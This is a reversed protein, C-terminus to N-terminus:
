GLSRWPKARQNLIMRNWMGGDRGASGLVRIRRGTPEAQTSKCFDIPSQPDTTVCAASCVFSFIISSPFFSFSLCWMAPLRPMAATGNPPCALGSPTIESLSPFSPVRMRLETNTIRPRRVSHGAQGECCEGRVYIIVLQELKPRQADYRLGLLKAFGWVEGDRDLEGFCYDNLEHVPIIFIFGV